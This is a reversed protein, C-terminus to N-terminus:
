LNLWPERCWAKREMQPPTKGDHLGQNRWNEAQPRRECLWTIIDHVTVPCWQVRRGKKPWTLGGWEKQDHCFAAIIYRQRHLKNSLAPMTTSSSLVPLWFGSQIKSSTSRLFCTSRRPKPRHTDIVCCKQCWHLTTHCILAGFTRPSDKLNMLVGSPQWCTRLSNKLRFSCCPVCGSQRAEQPNQPSPPLPAPKLSQLKLKPLKMHPRSQATGSGLRLSNSYLLICVLVASLEQTRAASRRMCPLPPVFYSM